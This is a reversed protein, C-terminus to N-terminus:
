GSSARRQRVQQQFGQALLSPNPLLLTPQLRQELALKVPLLERDRVIAAEVLGHRLLLLLLLLLQLPLLLLLQQLLQLLLLGLQLLLLRLFVHLLM